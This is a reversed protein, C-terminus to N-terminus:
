GAGFPEWLTFSDLAAARGPPVSALSEFDQAYRNLRSQLRARQAPSLSRELEVVMAVTQRQAERSLAEYEATRGQDWNLMWTQLEPALSQPTRYQTLLDILAQQRRQRDALRLAYTVPIDGSLQEMRARQTPSLPGVWEEMRAITRESRRQRQVDAPVDVYEAAFAENERRLATDFHNIQAPSLSSLVQAARPAAHRALADYRERASGLLWDIDDGSVSGGVRGRAELLLGAYRPLEVDRHWATTAKLGAKLQARQQTDLSFYDDAKWLVYVDVNNYALRVTSCSAVALVLAVLL